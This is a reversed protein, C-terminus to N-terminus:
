RGKQTNINSEQIAKKARRADDKSDAVTKEYSELRRVQSQVAEAPAGGAAAAPSAALQAKAERLAQAAEEARGEDLAKMATEVTRTSVAVDVKGQVDRDTGKAIAARDRTYTASCAFTGAERAGELQVAGRAVDLTGSGPPVALEVTVERSEGAYLDGVPIRCSGETGEYGSGIVDAVRVGRGLRLEIVCNQAYVAGISNLEKRFIGALSGPSEIFYYNGGGHEALLSMLNENYELGVGMATVSIGRQRYRRVIDALEHPDTIGRNALGDSLLIVRNVYERRVNREAQRLGEVLGGGLNTANRPTIEDVLAHLARRDRVAAAHRAVEVVDDYIVLSFLDDASLQDILRHLAARAYEIKGADSMSGSRDLVVALNVPRRDPRPHRHRAAITLHLYARGGEATIYPSTLKATVEVEGDKPPRAMAGADAGSVLLAAGLALQMIRKM